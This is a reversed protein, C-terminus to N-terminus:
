VEKVIVSWRPAKPGGAHTQKSDRASVSAGKPVSCETHSGGSEPVRKGRVYAM